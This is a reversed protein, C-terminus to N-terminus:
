AFERWLREFEATFESALDSNFSLVFNEANYEAAIRTWNYSGTLTTANDFVAFKHHMHHDSRDVRVRVGHRELRALDSGADLAKDNDSIIRVRTGRRHAAQIENSIRDDTITFVCIDITSKAYAILSAIKRPGNDGPTFYAEPARTEPKPPAPSSLVKMVEELWALLVEPPTEVLADRAVDFARSRLLHLEHSSVDLERVVQQLVQKEGRSMRADQLTHQLIREFQELDM